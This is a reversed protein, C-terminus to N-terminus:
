FKVQVRAQIMNVHRNPSVQSDRVYDYRYGLRFLVYKNLYYNLSLSFDNSIGGRIDKHSADTYDYGLVVELTKRAPTALCAESRSYRYSTEGLLLCRLWAYTGHAQFSPLGAHRDVNLYYYQSELVFRGYSLLLEPSIKLENGANSELNAELMKVKVVKTPFNSSFNWESAYITRETGNDYVISKFQTPTQYWASVGIQAIAGERAVPKWLFRGVGGISTRSVGKSTIDAENGFIASVGMFFKPKNLIYQVGLNRTMGQVFSDSTPQDFACKYSASTASQLGFQHIFYGGRLLNDRNFDYQLFVDKVSLKFYGFGIEAKASWNGFSAKVGVRLDPIAVGDTFGNGDPAYVAGDAMIRGVPEVKFRKPAISDAHASAALILISLSITLFKNM